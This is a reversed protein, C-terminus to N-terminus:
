DNVKLNKLRAIIPNEEVSISRSPEPSNKYSPLASPLMSPIMNAEKVEDKKNVYNQYLYYAAIALCIFIFLKFWPFTRQNTITNSSHVLSNKPLTPQPQRPEQRPEQKPPQQQIPLDKKITQVTCECPQESRLVMFFNQYINKDQIVQGSIEGNDVRQYELNPNNDLTAQDVVVLQFPKRDKSVVHFNLDFNVSNGNLDILQKMTGVNYTKTFTTM